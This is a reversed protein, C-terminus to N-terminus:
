HAIKVGSDLYIIRIRDRVRIWCSWRIQVWVSGYVCSQNVLHIYTIKMDDLRTTLAASMVINEKLYM